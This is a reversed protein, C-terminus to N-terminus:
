YRINKLIYEEFGNLMIRQISKLRISRYDELELDFVIITNKNRREVYNAYMTRNEGNLKEFQIKFTKKKLLKNIDKRKM